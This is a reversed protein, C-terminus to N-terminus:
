CATYQPAEYLMVALKLTESAYAWKKSFEILPGHILGSPGIGPVLMLEWAEASEIM